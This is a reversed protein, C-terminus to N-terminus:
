WPVWLDIVVNATDRYKGRDQSFDIWEVGDWEIEQRLM